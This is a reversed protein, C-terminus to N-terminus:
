SPRIRDLARKARSASWAAYLMVRYEEWSRVTGAWTVHESDYAFDYGGPKSRPQESMAANEVADASTTSSRVKVQSNVGRVSLLSSVATEAVRREYGKAVNGLLTVWGHTVLVGIAYDTRPALRGLARECDHAIDDDATNITASFVKLRSQIRKVGAIRKAASEILWQEGQSDVVGALTLVGDSVQVDIAVDSISPEMQLEDTVDKAIEIDTRPVHSGPHTAPDELAVANGPQTAADKRAFFYPENQLRYATQYHYM